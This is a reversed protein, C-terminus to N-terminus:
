LYSQYKIYNNNELYAIKQYFNNLINNNQIDKTDYFIINICFNDFIQNKIDEYLYNLNVESLSIIYIAMIDAMKERNDKINLTLSINYQRLFYIKLLPSLINFVHDDFLLVKFCYKLEDNDTFDDKLSFIDKLENNMKTVLNISEDIKAFDEM